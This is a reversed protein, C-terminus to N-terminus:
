EEEDLEYDWEGDAYAVAQFAFGEPLAVPEEWQGQFQAVTFLTWIHDKHEQTDSDQWKFPSSHAQRKRSWDDLGDHSWVIGYYNDAVWRTLGCECLECMFDVGSPTGIPTGHPKCHNGYLLQERESEM